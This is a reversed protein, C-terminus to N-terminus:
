RLLQCHHMTCFRHCLIAYIVGLVLYPDLYWIHIWTRGIYNIYPEIHHVHCEQALKLVVLM